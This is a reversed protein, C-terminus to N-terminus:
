ALTPQDTVVTFEGPESKPLNNAAIRQYLQMSSLSVDKPPTILLFEFYALPLALYRREPDSVGLAQWDDGHLRVWQWGLGACVSDGWLAGLAMGAAEGLPNEYTGRHLGEVVHELREITEAVGSGEELGTLERAAESAESLAEIDDPILAREELEVM